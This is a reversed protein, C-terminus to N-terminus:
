LSSGAPETAEKPKTEASKEKKKPRGPSKPKELVSKSKEDRSGTRKMIANAEDGPLIKSVFLLLQSLLIAVALAVYPLLIYNLTVNTKDGTEPGSSSDGPAGLLQYMGVICLASVALSMFIATKGQFLTKRLTRHVTALVIVFVAAGFLLLMIDHLPIYNSM